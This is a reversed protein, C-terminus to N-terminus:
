VGSRTDKSTYSTQAQTDWESVKAPLCLSPLWRMGVAEKIYVREVVSSFRGYIM